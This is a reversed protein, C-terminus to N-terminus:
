KKCVHSSSHKTHSDNQCPNEAGKPVHTSSHQTSTNAWAQNQALHWLCKQVHGPPPESTSLPSSCHQLSVNRHTKPSKLMTHDRLPSSLPPLGYHQVTIDLDLRKIHPHRKKLYTRANIYRCTHNSTM